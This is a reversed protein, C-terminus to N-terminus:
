TLINGSSMGKLRKLNTQMGKPRHQAVSDGCELAHHVMNQSTQGKNKNVKVINQNDAGVVGRLFLMNTLHKATKM